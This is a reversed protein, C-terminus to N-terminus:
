YTTPCLQQKKSAWYKKMAVSKKRKTEDSFKMGLTRTNGKLRESIGKKDEETKKRGLNYKSGKFFKSYNKKTEESHKYGLSRKQGLTKLRLKERTEESVIKGTNLERLKQKTEESLKGNSGGERINMLEVGADKYAAMYLIEYTNMIEQTIDEPLEHIPEIVHADWGYKLVSHYLHTQKKCHDKRYHYIRNKYNITQGIYVKGSPSTIKYICKM